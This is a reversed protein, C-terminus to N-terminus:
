EQESGLALSLLMAEYRLQREQIAHLFRHMVSAKRLPEAGPSPVFEHLHMGVRFKSSCNTCHRIEGSVVGLGLDVSVAAGVPISVPLELGLGSASVDVVRVVTPISGGVLLKASTDAPFRVERRQDEDRVMRAGLRYMGTAEPSCFVVRALIRHQACVMEFARKRRVYAPSRVQFLGGRVGLIQAPLEELKEDMLRLQVPLPVPISSASLPAM